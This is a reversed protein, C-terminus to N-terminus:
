SAQQIVMIYISASTAKVEPDAEEGPMRWGCTEIILQPQGPVVYAATMTLLSLFPSFPREINIELIYDGRIRIGELDESKGEM